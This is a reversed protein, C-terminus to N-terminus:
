VVGPDPVVPGDNGVARVPRMIEYPVTATGNWDYYVDPNPVVPRRERCGTGNRMRTPFPRRASGTM